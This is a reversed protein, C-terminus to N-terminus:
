TVRLPAEWVGDQLAHDLELPPLAARGEQRTMVHPSAGSVLALDELMNPFARAKSIWQSIAQLVTDIISKLFTQSVCCSRHLSSLM